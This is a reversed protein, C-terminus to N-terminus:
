MLSAVATHRSPAAGEPRCCEAYGEGSRRAAARMASGPGPRLTAHRWRCSRTEADFESNRRGRGCHSRHNHMGTRTSSVSCRHCCAGLGTSLLTEPGPPVAGASQMVSLIGSLQVLEPRVSGQAGEAVAQTSVVPRGRERPDRDLRRDPKVFTEVSRSGHRLRCRSVLLM